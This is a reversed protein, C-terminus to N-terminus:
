HAAFPYSWPWLYSPATWSLSRLAPRQVWGVAPRVPHCRRKRYPIQVVIFKHNHNKMSQEEHTESDQCSKDQQFRWSTRQRRSSRSITRWAASTSMLSIAMFRASWFAATASTRALEAITMFDMGAMVCQSAFFHRFDHFGVRPLGAKSRVLKFSERLSQAPIDKSGRQPSPFLFSSIQSPSSASM